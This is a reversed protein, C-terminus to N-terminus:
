FLSDGSPAFGPIDSFVWLPTLFVLVLVVLDCVFKGTRHWAPMGGSFAIFRNEHRFLSAIGNTLLHSCECGIKSM